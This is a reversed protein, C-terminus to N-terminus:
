QDDDDGWMCQVNIQQKKSQFWPSEVPYNSTIHKYGCM